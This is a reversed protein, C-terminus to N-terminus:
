SRNLFKRRTFYLFSLIRSKFSKSKLNRLNLDKFTIFQNAYLSLFKDLNSFDKEEMISPHLCFTWVGNIKMERCHGGIQPIFIFGDREYPQTAITDCVIRIDSCNKLAKLTNADFTHSPAFFYRPDLGNAKLLDIGKRIKKEQIELPLGAFESRHWIPNLGGCQSKCCHNYGHLAIAWGKADWKKALEWFYENNTSINQDPDENNPIIGVMPKIGYSDLLNEIRKWRESHMTPCADDLRLLYFKRKM